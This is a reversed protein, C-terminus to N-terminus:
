FRTSFTSQLLISTLDSGGTGRATVRYTSRGSNDGQQGININDLILAQHEIIYYPRTNVGSLSTDQVANATWWASDCQRWWMTDDDDCSEGGATPDTTAQILQWVEYPSANPNNDPIQNAAIDKVIPLSIRDELWDEAVRLSTEAAQFALNYDNFNGAMKEEMITTQMASIGLITLILLFILSVFLAIGQQKKRIAVIYSM